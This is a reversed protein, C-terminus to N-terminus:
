DLVVHKIVLNMQNLLLKGREKLKNNPNDRVENNTGVWKVLEGDVFYFKNVVRKNIKMYNKINTDFLSFQAYTKMMLVYMINKIFYYEYIEMYPKNGEKRSYVIILKKYNKPNDHDGQYYGETEGKEKIPIDVNRIGLEGVYSEFEILHNNIEDVQNQIDQLSM